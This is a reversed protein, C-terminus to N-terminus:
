ENITYKRRRSFLESIAEDDGNEARKLLAKEEDASNPSLASPSVFTNVEKLNKQAEETKVALAAEKAKVARKEEIIVKAAKEARAMLTEALEKTSLTKYTDFKEDIVKALQEDVIAKEEADTYTTIEKNLADMVEEFKHAMPASEEKKTAPATVPVEKAAPVEATESPVTEKSEVPKTDQKKDQAPPEVKAAQAEQAEKDEQAKAAAIHEESGGLMRIHESSLPIIVNESM